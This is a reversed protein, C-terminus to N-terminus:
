RDEERDGRETEPLDRITELTSLMARRWTLRAEVASVVRDWGDRLLDRPNPGDLARWVLAFTALEVGISVISEARSKGGGHETEDSM